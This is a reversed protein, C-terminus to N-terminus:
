QINSQNRDNIWFPATGAVSSNGKPLACATFSGGAPANPDNGGSNCTGSVLLRAPTYIVYDYRLDRARGPRFRGNLCAADNVSDAPPVAPPNPDRAIDYYATEATSTDSDADPCYRGSDAFFQEELLRINQLNTQAESMAAKRQQGIYLPVSIAALIGIIAVTILLEILTFGKNNRRVMNVGTTVIKKKSYAVKLSFPL